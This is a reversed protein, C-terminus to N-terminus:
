EALLEDLRASLVEAAEILYASNTTFLLAPLEIVRGERVARLQALRADSELATATASRLEHKGPGSIVLVQPDLELLSEIDLTAHWKLQLEDAANALGALELVLDHTTGHGRDRICM